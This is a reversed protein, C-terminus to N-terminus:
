CVVVQPLPTVDTGEAEFAAACDDKAIFDLRSAAPRNPPPLEELDGGIEFDCYDRGLLRMQNSRIAREADNSLADWALPTNRPSLGPRSQLSPIRCAIPLPLRPRRQEEM